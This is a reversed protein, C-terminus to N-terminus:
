LNSNQSTSLIRQRISAKRNGSTENAGKRVAIRMQVNKAQRKFAKSEGRYGFLLKWILERFLKWGM